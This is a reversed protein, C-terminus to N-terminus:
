TTKILVFNTLIGHLQNITKDISENRTVNTIVVQHRNSYKSDIPVKINIVDNEKINKFMEAQSKILIKKVIFNNSIEILECSM